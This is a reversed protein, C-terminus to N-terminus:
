VCVQQHPSSSRGREERGREAVHEGAIRERGRRPLNQTLIQIKTSTFCTFQTLVQARGVGRPPQPTTASESPTSSSAELDIRAIFQDRVHAMVHALAGARHLPQVLAEHDLRELMRSMDQPLLKMGEADIVHGGSWTQGDDEDITPEPDAGSMVSIFVSIAVFRPAKHRMRAMRAGFFRLVQTPHGRESRRAAASVTASLHDGGSLCFCRNFIASFILAWFFFKMPSPGIDELFVVKEM